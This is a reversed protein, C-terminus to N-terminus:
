VDAQSKSIPYSCTCKNNRTSLELVETIWKQLAQQNSNVAIHAHPSLSEELHLRALSTSIDPFSCM